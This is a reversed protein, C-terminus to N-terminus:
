LLKFLIFLLNFSCLLNKLNKSNKLVPSKAFVVFNKICDTYIKDQVM